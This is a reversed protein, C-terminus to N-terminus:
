LAGAAAHHHVHGVLGLQRFQDEFRARVALGIEARRPVGARRVVAYNEVDVRVGEGRNPDIGVVGMAVARGHILAAALARSAGPVGIVILSRVHRNSRTEEPPRRRGGERRRNEKGAKESRGLLDVHIDDVLRTVLRLRLFLLEGASVLLLFHEEAGVFRGARDDDVGFLAEEVQDLRVVARQAVADADAAVAELPGPQLLNGALLFPRVPTRWRLHDLALGIQRAEHGAARAVRHARAREIEALGDIADMAGVLRLRDAVGDRGAAEAEDVIVDGIEIAAHRDSRLDDDPLRDRESRKVAIRELTTMSFSVVSRAAVAARANPAAASAWVSFVTCSRPLSMQPTLSPRSAPKEKLSSLPSQDPKSTSKQRASAAAM